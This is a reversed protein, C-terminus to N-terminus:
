YVSAEKPPMPPLPPIRTAILRTADYGFLWDKRASYGWFMPNDADDGKMLRDREDRAPGDYLHLWEQLVRTNKAVYAARPLRQKEYAKLVEPMHEFHRLTSALTAADETAQAAGQAMYPM